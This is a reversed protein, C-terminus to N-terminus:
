DAPSLVHGHGAISCVPDMDVTSVVYVGGEPCLAPPGGNPLYGMIMSIDLISWPALRNDIRALDQAARMQKLTGVCFDTKANLSARVYHNPGLRPISLLMTENTCRFWNPNQWNVLNTSSEFRYWRGPEGTLAFTLLSQNGSP